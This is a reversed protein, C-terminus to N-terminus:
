SMSAPQVTGGEDCLRERREFRDLHAGKIYGMGTFTLGAVIAAARALGIPDIRLIVDIVERVIARPLTQLAYPREAALGDRAGVFEALLAKSLGEGYCRSRFYQYSARSAPVRHRVRAQPKYLWRGEPWRQSARICFETEEGAMPVTGMRGIGRRFGGVTDFVQRQFSMNCGVLARVSATTQPMGRFTCGVVWDFEEPFWRPRGHLWLPEVSGGVGLVRPDEYGAALQDLWDPPAVADDDLFAIVEGQTAAVGSNRAGSLGRPETSEVAVVGPVKARVREFLGPNHDVVVIIERPPLRQRRVSEAAAVLDNWREASYACIVVSIDLAV